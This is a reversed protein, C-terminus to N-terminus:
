KFNRRPNTWCIIFFFQGEDKGAGANIAPYPIVAGQTIVEKLGREPAKIKLPSEWQRKIKIAKVPKQIKVKPM